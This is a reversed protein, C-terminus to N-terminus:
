QLTWEGWLEPTLEAEGPVDNVLGTVKNSWYQRSVTLTGGSDAFLIGVDAKLKLGPASTIGLSKWPIQAEVTYGDSAPATALRVEPLVRVRDFEITRWPSSFPVRDKEKTGPVSKEYLVAVPIGAKMTMLLRMERGQQSRLMVDVADGTKFLLRDDQGRNRMEGSASSVRYTLYLNGDDYCAQVRGYHHQPDEEIDLTPFSKDTSDGMGPWEKLNGDIEIPQTRRRVTYSRPTSAAAAKKMLHLRAQEYQAPTYNFSGSGRKITELGTVEIVRADTGGLTVYAKGDRTRVFNGGFSEGGATTNDFPMGRVAKEPTEYGGRV